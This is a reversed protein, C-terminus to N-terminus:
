FIMMDLNSLLLFPTNPGGIPFFHIRKTSSMFMGANSCNPACGGMSSRRCNISWLFQYSGNLKLCRTKLWVFSCYLCLKSCLLGTMRAWFVFRTEFQEPLYSRFVVEFIERMSMWSRAAIPGGPPPLFATVDRKRRWKLIKLMLAKLSSVMTLMKELM